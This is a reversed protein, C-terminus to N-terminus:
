KRAMMRRREQMCIAVYLGIKAAVASPDMLEENGVTVVKDLLNEFGTEGPVGLAVLTTHLKDGFRTYAGQFYSTVEEKGSKGVRFSTNWACDSILILYIRRGCALAAAEDLMFALSLADSQAGTGSDPLSLLARAADKRGTAPTKRPHYIWQVLPGGIGQRITGSHYLGALVQIAKGATAILWACTLIKLMHIQASNLSGSGDCAVMLVPRGRKDAQECVKYRRFVASVVDALPLRAPDLTGTTRLRETEPVQTFNPYLTRRLDDVVPQAERKLNEYGSFDDSLEVPRDFIEGGAEQGDGLSVKVSHGDAPNGQLPGEKFAASRAAREVLDSRLDQAQQSQGSAQSITQAFESILQSLPDVTGKESQAQGAPLTEDGAGGRASSLGHVFQRIPDPDEFLTPARSSNLPPALPAFPDPREPRKEGGAPGRGSPLSAGGPQDPRPQQPQAQPEPLYYALRRGLTKVWSVGEDILQHPKTRSLRALFPASAEAADELIALTLPHLKRGRWDPLVDGFLVVARLIEPLSEFRLTQQSALYLRATEVTAAPQLRSLAELLLRTQVNEAVVQVLHRYAEPNVRVEDREAPNKLYEALYSILIKEKVWQQYELFATQGICAPVALSAPYTTYAASIQPKVKPMFSSDLGPNVQRAVALQAQKVARYFLWQAKLRHDWELNLKYADTLSIGAWDLKSRRKYSGYSYGDSYHTGYQM